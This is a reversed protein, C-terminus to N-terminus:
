NCLICILTLVNFTNLFKATINRETLSIKWININYNQRVNLSKDDTNLPQILVSPSPTDIDNIEHFKNNKHWKDNMYASYTTKTVNYM